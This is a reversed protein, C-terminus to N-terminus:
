KQITDKVENWIATFDKETQQMQKQYDDGIIPDPLVGLKAVDENFKPDNFMKKISDLLKQRIEEPIGKPASLGRSSGGIMNKVGSEEFTPVDKIVDVREKTMVALIRANGAQVQPLVTGLNNMSADIKGGAANQWSPADGDFPVMQVQIGAEKQFLLTYFFDDGGTGSNGVTVKGPNAKAADIFDQLTKFPSDKGVMLVGPDTVVNALPTFDNVSYKIDSNTIYNTAIMPMNTVSITYGDNKTAHALETWAVAGAAGPKYIPNFTANLSPELYPRVLQFLQDSGGGPKFGMLMNIPKEPYKVEQKAPESKGADKPAEQKTPQTGCATLAFMMAIVVLVALVQKTRKSM